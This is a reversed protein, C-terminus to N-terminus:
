QLRSDAQNQSQVIREVLTELYSENPPQYQQPPEPQYTSNLAYPHDHWSPYYPNSYPNYPGQPPSSFNGVDYNAEDQLYPCYDTPHDTMACIGCAKASNIEGAFFFNVVNTLQDIKNEISILTKARTSTMNFLTRRARAEFEPEFDVLEGPNRRTM